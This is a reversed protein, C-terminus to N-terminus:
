NQKQMETNIERKAQKVATEADPATWERDKFQKLSTKVTTQGNEQKVISFRSPWQEQSYSGYKSMSRSM